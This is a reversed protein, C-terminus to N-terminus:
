FNFLLDFFDFTNNCLLYVSRFACSTLVLVKVVLLLCVFESKLKDNRHYSFKM